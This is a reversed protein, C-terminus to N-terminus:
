LGNVLYWPCGLLSGIVKQSHHHFRFEIRKSSSQVGLNDESFIAISAWPMPFFYAVNTCGLLSQYFCDMYGFKKVRLFGM